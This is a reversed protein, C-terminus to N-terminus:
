GCDDRANNAVVHQPALAPIDEFAANSRGDDEALAFAAIIMM